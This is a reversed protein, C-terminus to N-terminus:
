HDLSRYALLSVRPHQSRSSLRTHFIYRNLRSEGEGMLIKESLASSKQNLRGRTTKQTGDSTLKECSDKWRRARANMNQVVARRTQRTMVRSTDRREWEDLNMPAVRADSRTARAHAHAVTRALHRRPRRRPRGVRTERRRFRVRVRRVRSSRSDFRISNFKM